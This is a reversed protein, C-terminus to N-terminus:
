EENYNRGQRICYGRAIATNAAEPHYAVAANRTRSQPRKRNPCYPAAASTAEAMAFIMLCFRLFMASKRLVVILSNHM